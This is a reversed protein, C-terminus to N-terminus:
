KLGPCWERTTRKGGQGSRSQTHTALQGTERVELISSDQVRDMVRKGERNIRVRPSKM